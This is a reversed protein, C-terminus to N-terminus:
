RVILVPIELQHRVTDITEGHLLDGFLRHGHAGMVLLDIANAKVFRVLAEAPSGHLIEIDVSAGLGRMETAVAELYAEDDQAHEDWTDTGYVQAHATDVVHLLVVGAEDASALRLCHGVVKADTKSRDLAVAIRRLKQVRIADIVHGAVAPAERRWGRHRRLLPGLTIYALVGAIVAVLAVVGATMLPSVPGALWGGVTDYVLRSNLGVIIVATGWALPKVWAPTSFVGMKVRDSTFHILPIIAFPLQLSLVVQSVLMLRYTGSDGTLAIVLVAPVIAATRTILRRLWPRLRVQIFGEMVIQGALTGTLTSSQGAALLALAFLVQAPRSGVLSDLLHHAQQIETVVVGNKFFVAAAVVMIGVNVLFAANLAVVTDILNYKCAAAKGEVSQKVRRTQVLASHLYLNHPMVTAGILGLVVFLAGPPISPLFGTALEPLSPKAILVEILFAVGITGVMMLIFAEMKRIGLRQIAFLLFTDFLTVACGWLLPLGFLLNLGIITGLVEALDCAIIALECIIWLFFSVPRSYESRCAQALDKGSAIGLRAALTQLLVAMLNSMLLVWVLAYGFRSGAELDTAWNGPDMYGISILYAPGSFAFLRRLFGQRDTKVSGHLESLSKQGTDGM